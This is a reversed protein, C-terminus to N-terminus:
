GQAAHPAEAAQDTVPECLGIQAAEARHAPRPEALDLRGAMYGEVYVARLIREAQDVLAGLDPRTAAMRLLYIDAAANARRRWSRSPHSM